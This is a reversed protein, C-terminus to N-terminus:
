LRQLILAGAPGAVGPQGPEGEKGAKGGDARYVFCGKS